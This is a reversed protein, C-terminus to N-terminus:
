DLLESLPAGFSETTFTRMRLTPPWPGADFGARQRATAIFLAPDPVRDWTAPLQVLTRGRDEVILGTRGPILKQLVDKDCTAAIPRPHSLISVTLTTARLEDLSLPVFRPDCLGARVTQALVEAALGRMPNFTGAQGRPAREKELTVFAARQAILTLPLRGGPPVPAETSGSRVAALLSRAALTLLQRRDDRPLCTQMASEFVFAGYGNFRGSPRLSEAATKFDVGTVRLDLSRARLLAASIARHGAARHTSLRDAGLSEIVARTDADFARVKDESADSSLGSAVIILTEPGGWVAELVSDIVRPDANGVLLPLLEFRDLCVQLFPLLVEIAHEGEFPRDDFSVEVIPKLRQLMRWDVPIEGLPTSFGQVTPAALGRLVARHATGIVVVRRVIESRNALGAIASAIVDGAEQLPGAPAIILKPNGLPRARASVIARTIAEALDDADAPYHVGAVQPPLVDLADAAVAHALM